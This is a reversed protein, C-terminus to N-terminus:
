SLNFENSCKPITMSLDHKAQSSLGEGPKKVDHPNKNFEVKADYNLQKIVEHDHQIENKVKYWTFSVLCAMLIAVVIVTYLVILPKM